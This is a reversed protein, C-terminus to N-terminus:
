ALGDSISPSRSYAVLRGTMAKKYKNEVDFVCKYVLKDAKSSLELRIQLM